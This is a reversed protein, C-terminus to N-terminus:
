EHNKRILEKVAKEVGGIDPMSYYARTGSRASGTKKIINYSSLPRLNSMRIGEAKLRDFVWAGAFDNGTQRAMDLCIRAVPLLHPREQIMRKVAKYGSIEDM